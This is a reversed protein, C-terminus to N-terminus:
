YYLSKRYSISILNKPMAVYFNAVFLHDCVCQIMPLHVQVLTWDSYVFSTNLKKLIQRDKLGKKMLVRSDVWRVCIPLRKMSVHVLVNLNSYRSISYESSWICVVLSLSIAKPEQLLRKWQSLLNKTLPENCSVKMECLHQCFIKFLVTM